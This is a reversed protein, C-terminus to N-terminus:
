NTTLVYPIEGASTVRTSSLLCGGSVSCSLAANYGLRIFGLSSTLSPMNPVPGLTNWSGATEAAQSFKSSGTFFSQSGSTAVAETDITGVVVCTTRSLCGVGAGAFTSLGNTPSQPAFAHAPQLTGNSETIQITDEGRDEFYFNKGKVVKYFPATGLAVCNGASGCAIDSVSLYQIAPAGFGHLLAAQGPIVQPQSWRGKSEVSIYPTAYNQASSYTGAMLCAGPAGCALATVGPNVNTTSGVNMAVTGPVASAIWGSPTETVLLSQTQGSADNYSGGIICSSVSPCALEWAAVSSAGLAALNAADTTLYWTGSHEVDILMGNSSKSAPYDGIAVCSTSTPCTVSTLEAGLGANFLSTPSAYQTFGTVTQPTQWIGSIELATFAHSVFSADLYAGVLACNGVSGCSLSTVRIDTAALSAVGPLEQDTAWVGGSQQDTFLSYTGSATEYEGAVECSGVKACSSSGIAAATGVSLTASTSFDSATAWTGNTKTDVFATTAGFSFLSGFAEGSVVCADNTDCWLTNLYGNFSSLLPSSLSPSGPLLAAPAFVGNVEQETFYQAAGAGDIFTGVSECNGASACTLETTVAGENNASAGANLAALGPTAVADSWAGNTESAVFSQERSQGDIYSGVITCQGAAPCSIANVGVGSSSGQGSSQASGVNLADAGSVTHADAWVGNVEEDVFANAIGNNDTAWGGLVCNGPAGCSVSTSAADGGGNVTDFGTPMGVPQWVGGVEEYLFATTDNNFDSLEGTVVCSTASACSLAEPYAQTYEGNNSLGLDASGVMQVARGWVGNTETATFIQGIGDSDSYDGVAVCNDPSSCSVHDATAYSGSGLGTVHTAPQWVGAQDSLVFAYGDSQGVAVCSNAGGCSVDSVEAQSSGALAGTVDAAPQWVGNIETDDYVKSRGVHDLYDGVAVCNGASWCTIRPLSASPTGVTVTTAGAVNSVASWSLSTVTAGAPLACQLMTATAIVLGGFSRRM